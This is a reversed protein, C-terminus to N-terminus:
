DALITIGVFPVSEHAGEMPLNGSPSPELGPRTNLRVQSAIEDKAATGVAQVLACLSSNFAAFAEKEWEDSGYKEPEFTEIEHVLAPVREQLELYRPIAQISVEQNRLM